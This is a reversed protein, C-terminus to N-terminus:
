TLSNSWMLLRWVNPYDFTRIATM